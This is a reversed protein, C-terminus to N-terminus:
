SKLIMNMIQIYKFAKMYVSTKNMEALVCGLSVYNGVPLPALFYM